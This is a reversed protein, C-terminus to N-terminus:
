YRGRLYHNWYAGPSAAAQWRAFEIESLGNLEVTGGSVFSVWATESAADFIVSAIADSSPYYRQLPSGNASDRRAVPKRRRPLTILRPASM